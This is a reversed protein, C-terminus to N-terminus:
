IFQQGRREVDSVDGVERRRIDLVGPFTLYKM